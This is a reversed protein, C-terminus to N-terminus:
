NDHALIVSYRSDAYKRIFELSKPPCVSCGTARQRTLCERSYCEDGAFVYIKDGKKIEVVCSGKSHGGIKLIRINECLRYEESFKNLEMEPPIYNKGDEYEDNQIHIRAKKFYKTCEIHDHHSHTLILDTIDEPLININKLANVPGIFNEMVFGPMTECGADILVIREGDKVLLLQFIIARKIQSNGGDFVMSEPLTSNAYKIPIIKM